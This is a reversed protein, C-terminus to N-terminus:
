TIKIQIQKALRVKTVPFVITLVGDKLSADTTPEDYESSSVAFAFDYKFNDNEGRVTIIEDNFSINIEDKKLGPVLFELVLSGDKNLSKRTFNNGITTYMNEEWGKFLDFSSFVNSMRLHSMSFMCEPLYEWMTM